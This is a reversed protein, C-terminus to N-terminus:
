LYIRPDFGTPFETSVKTVLNTSPVMLQLYERNAATGEAPM